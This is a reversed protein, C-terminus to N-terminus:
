FPMKPKRTDLNSSTLPMSNGMLSKKERKLWAWQKTEKRLLLAFIARWKSVSAKGYLLSLELDM